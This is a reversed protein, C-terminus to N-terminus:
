AHTARLGDIMIEVTRQMAEPRPVHSPTYIQVTMLLTVEAISVDARLMGDAQAQATMQAVLDIVERRPEFLEPDVQIEEHLHPELASSLAGLQLDACGRLFRCLAPWAGPEERVATRALESLAHLSAQAAARILSDRDPFRRYLTGVGVGARRAVEEMPVDVGEQQFLLLAAAVIQDRNRRADARLGAGGTGAATRSQSDM